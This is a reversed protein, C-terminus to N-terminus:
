MKQSSGGPVMQVAIEGFVGGVDRLCRLILVVKVSVAVQCALEADADDGSCEDFSM